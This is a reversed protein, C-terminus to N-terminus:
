LPLIAGCRNHLFLTQQFANMTSGPLFKENVRSDGIFYTQVQPESWDPIDTAVQGTAIPFRFSQIPEVLTIGATNRYRHTLLPSM